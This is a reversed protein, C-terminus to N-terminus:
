LYFGTKLKDTGAVPMQTEIQIGLFDALRARSETKLAEEAGTLARKIEEPADEDVFVGGGGTNERMFGQIAHGVQDVSSPKITPAEAEKVVLMGTAAEWLGNNAIEGIGKIRVVERPISLRDSDPTYFISLLKGDLEEGEVVFYEVQTKEAVANIEQSIM